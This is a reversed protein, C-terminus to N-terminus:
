GARWAPGLVSALNMRLSGLAVAAPLEERRVLRPTMAELSPRQLGDLAATTGAAVFLVVLRPEPLLANALLLASSTALGLETLQVMRRRDRADALAGGVFSALLLPVFEALGLLGVVLSSGTIQYAQYPVAVYTIASGIATVSQGIFLLRFDRHRRLLGVDVTGHRV